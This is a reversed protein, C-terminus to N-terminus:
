SASRYIAIAREVVAKQSHYAKAHEHGIRGWERRRSAEDCLWELIGLLNGPNAEVFPTARRDFDRVMMERTDQNAIGSVVPIGMAWCELANLGYGLTLEDVFIDSRAKRQICEANPVGEILDFDIPYKRSLADIATLIVDTSKYQRNTPAHSIKISASPVYERKRLKALPAMDIVDPLWEAGSLRVLDHMDACETAGIARCQASVEAPKSRYFTGLHHVVLGKRTPFWTACEPKEFIHVIDADRWLKAVRSSQPGDDRDWQIDAPYHWPSDQLRVHRATHGQAEFAARMAAGLGATDPGPSFLLINM